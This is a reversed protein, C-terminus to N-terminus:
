QVANSDDIYEKISIAPCKESNFIMISQMTPIENREKFTMISELAQGVAIWLNPMPKYYLFLSM